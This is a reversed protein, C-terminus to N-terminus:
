FTPFKSGLVVVIQASSAPISKETATTGLMRGLIYAESPTGAGAAPHVVATNVYVANGTVSQDSVTPTVTSVGMNQLVASYHSAERATSAEVQVSNKGMYQLIDACVKAVIQHIVSEHGLLVDAGGATKYNTVAGSTYDLVGTQINAKPVHLVALALAPVNAYPVNTHVLQQLDGIIRPLHLLNKPQLLAQRLGFLVQQQDAQRQIDGTTFSHRERSFKLAETGNLHQPGAPLQFLTCANENANPYCTDYIGKGTIGPPVVVNVGGVANVLDVLAHYDVIAYYEIPIGVYKEVMLEAVQVGGDEYAANIRNPGYNPLTIWLDRPVSMISVSHDAPEYTVVMMSDTLQPGAYGPQNENSIVLISFPQQKQVTITPQNKPQLTGAISGGVSGILADRNQWAVLAGAVLVAAIGGLVWWGRRRVRRRHARKGAMWGGREPARSPWRATTWSLGRALPSDIAPM